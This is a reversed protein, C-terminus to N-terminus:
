KRVGYGGMFRNVESSIVFCKNNTLERVEEAVGKAEKRPLVVIFYYENNGRGGKGPLVTYGRNNQHLYTRIQRLYEEGAVIQLDTTGLALFNEILSGLYLGLAYGLCYAILLAVNTSLTAIIGSIIFGWILCEIFALLAAVGRQGKVMVVTKVSQVSIELIKSCCVMVCLAWNPIADMLELM